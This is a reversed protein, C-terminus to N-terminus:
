QTAQQQEEIAKETVALRGFFKEPPVMDFLDRGVSATVGFHVGGAIGPFSEDMLQEIGSLAASADTLLEKAVSVDCDFWVSDHVFNVLLARNDYFDKALMTRHLRGMAAQVLEAGYAQIPYNKLPPLNNIADNPKFSVRCGNPLEAVYHTPLGPNGDRFCLGRILTNFQAIGPYSREEQQVMAKIVEPDVNATKAMLGRGAGYM